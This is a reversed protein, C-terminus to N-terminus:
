HSEETHFNAPPVDDAELDGCFRVALEDGAGLVEVRPHSLRLADSITAAGFDALAAAGAGLLAPATYAVVQDVLGARLFATALTPGGELLVHRIKRKALVALVARPDHDPLLVYHDDALVRATPPLSRSGVVALVTAMLTVDDERVGGHGLPLVNWNM